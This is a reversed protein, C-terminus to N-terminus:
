VTLPEQRVCRSAAVGGRRSARWGALSLGAFGILLMAWTSPEPVAPAGGDGASPPFALYQAGLNLLGENFATDALFLIYDLDAPDFQSAFSKESSLKLDAETLVDRVSFGDLLAVDAGLVFSLGFDGDPLTVSQGVLSDLNQFVLDGFTVGAPHALLNADSFDVNLTLAVADAGLIGGPASRPDSL